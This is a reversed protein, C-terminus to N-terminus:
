DEDEDETVTETGLNFFLFLPIARLLFMQCAQSSTMLFESCMQMADSSLSQECALTTPTRHQGTNRVAGPSLCRLPLAKVVGQRAVCPMCLLTPVHGVSM